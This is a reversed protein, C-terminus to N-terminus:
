AVGRRDQVRLSVRSTTERPVSPHSVDRGSNNWTSRVLAFEVAPQREVHFL